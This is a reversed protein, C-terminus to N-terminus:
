DDGAEDRDDAENDDEAGDDDSESGVVEFSDDLEVEVQSGDDLRIEVEYAAGDDGIETETVTGEGVHGLAAATARDRDSGRLPRDDDGGAAGSIGAGAGLAAVAVVAGLAIKTRKDM